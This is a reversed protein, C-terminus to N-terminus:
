QVFTWGYAYTMHLLNQLSDEMLKLLPINIPIVGSNYKYAAVM